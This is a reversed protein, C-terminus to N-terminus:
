SFYKQNEDEERKLTEQFDNLNRKRGFGIEKIDFRKSLYENIFVDIGDYLTDLSDSPAYLRVLAERHDAITEIFPFYSNSSQIEKRPLNAFIRNLNIKRQSSRVGFSNFGWFDGELNILAGVRRIKEISHTNFYNDWQETCISTIKPNFHLRSFLISIGTVDILDLLPTMSTRIQAEINSNFNEFDKPLLILYKSFSNQFFSPFLQNFKETNNDILANFLETEIKNQFQGLYDPIDHIKEYSSLLDSFTTIDYIIIEDLDKTLKNIDEDKVVSWELYEHFKNAYLEKSIKSIKPLYLKLKELLEIKKSILLSGFVVENKIYYDEILDNLYDYSFRNIETVGEKIRHSYEQSIMEAIHWSPTVINGNIKFETNITKIIYSVRNGCFFPFNYLIKNDEKRWDYSDVLKYIDNYNRSEVSRTFNIVINIPATYLLEALNIHKQLTSLDNHVEEFEVSNFHHILKKLLEFCRVVECEISLQLAYEIIKSLLLYANNLDSNVIFFNLTEILSKEIEEEFWYYNKVTKPQLQTGTKSAVEIEHYSSRYWDSISFENQYWESKVPISRKLKSYTKLIEVLVLNIQLLPAKQLNKNEICVSNLSNFTTISSYAMERFEIQFRTKDWEKGQIAVNSFSNLLDEAVILVLKTPDTLQFIRRGLMYFTSVALGSLITLFIVVIFSKPPFGLLVFVVLSICSFTLSSLFLMYKNGFKERNLLEKVDNNLDSYTTTALGGIAAYYLGIFVGCISIITLLFSTYLETEVRFPEFVGLLHVSYDLLSVLVTIIFSTVLIVSSSLFLKKFDYGYM